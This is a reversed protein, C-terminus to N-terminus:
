VIPTISTIILSNNKAKRQYESEIEYIKKSPVCKGGFRTIGRAVSGNDDMLVVNFHRRRHRNLGYRM